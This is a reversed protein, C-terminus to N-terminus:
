PKVAKKALLGNACLGGAALSLILTIVSVNAVTSYHDLKRSVLGAVTKSPKEAEKTDGSAALGEIHKLQMSIAIDFHNRRALDSLSILVAGLNLLALLVCIILLCAGGKKAQNVQHV